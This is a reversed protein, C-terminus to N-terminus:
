YPALEESVGRDKMFEKGKETLKIFTMKRDADGIIKTEVSIFDVKELFECNNKVTKFGTGIKTRLRGLTMENYRFLLQLIELKIKDSEILVM